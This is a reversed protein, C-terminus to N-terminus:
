DPRVQLIITILDGSELGTTTLTIDGTKGTGSTNQLGGMCSFDKHTVQLPILDLALVDTDADFELKVRATAAASVTAYVSVITCDLPDTFHNLTAVASSDFVVLDTEESGDSVLTIYQFISRSGAIQRTNVITNAM